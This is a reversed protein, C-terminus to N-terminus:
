VYSCSDNGPSAQKQVWSGRKTKSNWSMHNPSSYWMNWSLFFLIFVLIWWRTVVCSKSRILNLRLGRISHFLCLFFMVKPSWCICGHVDHSIMWLLWLTVFDLYFFLPPQGGCMQICLKLLSTSKIISMPYSSRCHKAFECCDCQFVSSKSCLHLFLHKLLSFSPHGLRQHWQFLSISCSSNDKIRPASLQQVSSAVHPKGDLVYLGDEVHGRGITTRTKLDQFVCHNPFFTVCCNLSKTLHCVSVLNLTFNPVHLVSSLLLTPTVSISGKDVISSYCDDAIWVKDKGSCVSYLSFHSPIGTM